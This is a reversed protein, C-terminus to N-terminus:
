KTSVNFQTVLARMDNATQTLAALDRLAAERRTQLGAEVAASDQAGRAVERQLLAELEAIQRRIDAISKDQRQAIEQLLAKGEEEARSVDARIGNSYADIAAAKAAADNVPDNIVWSDDAADIAQVTMLRMPPDMAKLGELVRQLREAPYPCAPVGAAAYVQQLSLPGSSEGGTAAVAQAAEAPPQVEAAVSSSPEDPLVVEGEVRRALGVGELLSMLGM